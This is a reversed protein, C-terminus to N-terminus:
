NTGLDYPVGERLAAAIPTGLLVKARKPSIHMKFIRRWPVGGGVGGVSRLNNKAGQFSRETSRGVWALPPVFKTGRGTGEMLRAGM